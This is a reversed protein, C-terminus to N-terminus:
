PRSWTHIFDSIPAATYDGDRMFPVADQAHLLRGDAETVYLYPYGDAPPYAPLLRVGDADDEVAIKLLVFQRHLATALAPDRVLLRDLVHCWRCWEGGLEILVRRGSTDALARAAAIDTVADRAPDYVRSFAPLVQDPASDNAAAMAPLCIAALLLALRCHPVTRDISMAGGYFARRQRRNIRILRASVPEYGNMGLPAALASRQVM